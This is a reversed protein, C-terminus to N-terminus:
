EALLGAEIADKFAGLREREAPTLVDDAPPTTDSQESWTRGERDDGSADATRDSYLGARVAGRFAILRALEPATFHYTTEMASGDSM